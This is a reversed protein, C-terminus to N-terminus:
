LSAKCAFVVEKSPREGPMGPPLNLDLDVDGAEESEGLEEEQDGAGESDGKHATPTMVTPGGYGTRAEHAVSAAEPQQQVDSVPTIPRPIEPPAAPSRTGAPTATQALYKLAQCDLLRDLVDDHVSLGLIGPNRHWACMM